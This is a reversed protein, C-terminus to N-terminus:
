PLEMWDSTDEHVVEKTDFVLRNLQHPQTEHAHAYALPMAEAVQEWAQAKTEGHCYKRFIANGNAYCMFLLTM